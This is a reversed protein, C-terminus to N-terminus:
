QNSAPRILIKQKPYITAEPELNNLHRFEDLNINYRLSIRYLTEGALVEHYVAETQKEATQATSSKPPTIRKKIFTDNLSNFQKNKEKVQELNAEIKDARDLREELRKIRKELSNMKSGSDVNGPPQFLVAVLVILSLVFLSLIVAGILLSFGGKGPPKGGSRSGKNKPLVSYGENASFDVELDAELTEIKDRQKVVVGVGEIYNPIFSRRHLGSAL